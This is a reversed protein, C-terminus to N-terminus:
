GVSYMLSHGIHVILAGFMVNSSTVHVVRYRRLITALLAYRRLSRELRAREKFLKMVAAAKGEEAQGEVEGRLGEIAKRQRRDAGLLRVIGTLLRQSALDVEEDADALGDIKVMMTYGHRRDVFGEEIQRNLTQVKQEIEELALQQGAQSRPVLYLLYRGVVGTLIAVLMTVFTAVAIPERFNQTTHFFAYVLGLVGLWIQSEMWAQVSGLRPAYRKGLRYLQTAIMCSGGIYGLAHGFADGPKMLDAPDVAAVWGMRAFFAGFTLEPWWARGLCEWFLLVFNALTFLPWFRKSGQRAAVSTDVEGVGPTHHVTFQEWYDFISKGDIQFMAGTPCATICAQDRYKACNDCKQAINKGKADPGRDPFYRPLDLDALSHMRIADFSCGRSCMTCGTCNDAIVIEGTAEDRSIQGFKCKDICEPVLCNHCNQPIETLGYKVESAGLRDTGHRTRCADYCGDCEICIDMRKIKVRGAFTLREKVIFEAIEGQFTDDFRTAQRETVQRITASFADRFTPSKRLLYNVDRYKLRLARIPCMATLRLKQTSGDVFLKQVYADGPRLYNVVREGDATTRHVSVDGFTLVFVPSDDDGGAPAGDFLHETRELDLHEVRTALRELLPRELPAFLPIAALMDATVVVPEAKKKRGKKGKKPPAKRVKKKAKTTAPSAM